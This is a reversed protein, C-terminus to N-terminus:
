YRGGNGSLYVTGATVDAARFIAKAELVGGDLQVYHTGLNNGTCSQQFQIGDGTLTTTGGTQRFYATKDATAAGRSLRIRGTTLKGGRVEVGGSGANHGVQIADGGTIKVDAGNEVILKGNSNLGVFLNKSTTFATNSITMSPITSGYVQVTESVSVTANDSVEVHGAKVDFSAGWTAQSGRFRLHANSHDIEVKPLKVVVNTGFIIEGGRNNMKFTNNATSYGCATLFDYTGRSAVFTPYHDSASSLTFYPDTWSCCPGSSTATKVTAYAAGDGTQLGLAWSTSYKGGESYPLEFTHANGTMYFKFSSSDQAKFVLYNFDTSVDGPVTVKVDHGTGSTVYAADGSGPSTAVSIGNNTKWTSSGLYDNDRNRDRFEYTAAYALDAVVLACVALIMRTASAPLRKM